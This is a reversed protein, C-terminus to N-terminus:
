DMPNTDAYVTIGRNEKDQHVARLLHAVLRRLDPGNKGMLTLRYRYRNNVKAVAAPAPGLLTYPQGLRRLGDELGGRVKACARLVGAEEPGSATLVLMDEFPPYGRLQRLAIESRYFSDYDQRAAFHIIENDPTYTQIM